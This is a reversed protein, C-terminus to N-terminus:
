SIPTLNSYHVIPFYNEGCPVKFDYLNQDHVAITV